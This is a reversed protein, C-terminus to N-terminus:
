NGRMVHVVGCIASIPLMGLWEDVKLKSRNSLEKGVVDSYEKESTASWRLCVCVLEKDVEDLALTWEVYQLFVHETKNKNTQTNPRFQLLM